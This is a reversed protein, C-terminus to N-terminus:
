MKLMDKRKNIKYNRWSQSVVIEVKCHYKNSVLKVKEIKVGLKLDSMLFKRGLSVDDMSQPSNDRLWAASVHSVRADDELHPYTFKRINSRRHNEINLFNM